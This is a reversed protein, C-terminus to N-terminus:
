SVPSSAWAWDCRTRSGPWLHAAFGSSDPVLPFPSAGGPWPPPRAPVSGLTPSETVAHPGTPQGHHRGKKGDTPHVASGPGAPDDTGVAGDTAVAEAGALPYAAVAPSPGVIPIARADCV